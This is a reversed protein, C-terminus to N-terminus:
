LEKIKELIFGSLKKPWKNKITEKKKNLEIVINDSIKNDGEILDLLAEKIYVPEKLRSAQFRLEEKEEENKEELQKEQKEWAKYYDFEEKKVQKDKLTISALVMNHMRQLFAMRDEMKVIDMVGQMVINFAFPSPIKTHKEILEIENNEIGSIVETAGTIDMQDELVERRAEKLIPFDKSIRKIASLLLMSSVQQRGVRKKRGMYSRLIMLSRGACHRFRRKLIESGELANEMLQRLEDSKILRIAKAINTKSKVGLYFGNDNLGIEVDKHQGRTVAYGIARSLVDNARRGFLSHFVIKTSNEDKYHEIIIKKDNPIEKLYHYQEYFYHYIAEASNKDLYLYQNIFDIIQKKSQGKFKEEMLRRFKGIDKALDFSLPLMESVWSPVTPPRDVTPQVQAVMGRSHRFIYRNGGLVFVDGPRLRELFGEDITGVVMNGQKVQVGTQDPITGINTMYIVRAMKGRKGVKGDKRWIKAYVNRDELKAYEGALYNLIGEFDMRSLNEYCYSQTIVKYMQEEEWVDAIAMGYIHQALVDLSNKPIHVRDIKKEIASKLLIACEVLDDRDLVIIRGKTMAQLQHGSRGIRQLARAVSKPSGLTIVLDISGIDIGLELSTSCVVARMKGEKLRQELMARHEASLSGHHAGINESYFKPYREKLNDVVRETASRTNTFILTTKHDKIYSHLKKYLEEHIDIASTNVLDPVASVVKLDMKKKFKVDVIICDRKGALYKAVEELPAVTASLGIRSIHPSLNALREISVSLHVGRKNDALAHIEDAIFWDVNRLNERFKPSNLVIGLSEPTTILIHPPKKLQKSRENTTTDGTRVDVRIGLEGTLEEIEHLPELLNTRIDNNLAKLPSVYVCYIKDELIGKQASDVLENLIALFATLTKTAGTPASVLINKRSNIELVASRQPESFESFKSFFWKRVAPKLINEVEKASDLKKKFEVM